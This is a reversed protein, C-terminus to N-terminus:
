ADIRRGNIMDNFDKFGQAPWICAVRAVGNALQLAGIQKELAAEAQSGSKDHQGIIIVRGAQPPLPLNGINGGTAAAHVHRDADLMAISLGDEIGESVYVDTGPPLDRMRKGSAGKHLPITAGAFSGLIMKPKEVSAKVWRGRVLELYTRHTAQHTGDAAIMCSVMAPIKRGLQKNTCDHRYRIAGPLRGLRAFDIGRGELYFQAPTDRMPTAHQWLGVANLRNREAENALARAKQERRRDFDPDVKRSRFDIGADAELQKLADIFSVGQRAQVYAIVDGHASCGFCHYFQKDDNVTFSPTREDHFPCCGVHERGKRTLPVDQGIISVISVRDKLRAARREIPEMSQGGAM